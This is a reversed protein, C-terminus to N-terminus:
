IRAYSDRLYKLNSILVEVATDVTRISNTVDKFKNIRITKENVNLNMNDVKISYQLRDSCYVDVSRWKPRKARIM